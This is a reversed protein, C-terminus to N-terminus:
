ITRLEIGLGGMIDSNDANVQTIEMWVDTKPEIVIARGFPAIEDGASRYIYEFEMRKLKGETKTWIRYVSFVTGTAVAHPVLIGTIFGRQAVGVSFFTGGQIMTGLEMRGQADTSGVPRIQVNGANVGGSGVTLVEMFQVRLFQNTMPVPTVGNLIVTETIVAWNADLGTVKVTRAGTGAAADAAASSVAETAAAAAPWINLGGKGWLVEPVTAIDIDPNRGMRKIIKYGTEYAGM